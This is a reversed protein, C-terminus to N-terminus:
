KMSLYRYRPRGVAVMRQENPSRCPRVGSGGFIFSYAQAANPADDFGWPSLSEGILLPVSHLVFAFTGLVIVVAVLVAQFVPARPTRPEAPTAWNTQTQEENGNRYREPNQALGEAPLLVERWYFLM